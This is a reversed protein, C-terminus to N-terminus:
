RRALRRTSMSAVAAGGSSEYVDVRIAESALGNGTLSAASASSDVARVVYYGNLYGQANGGTRTWDTAGLPAPDELVTLATAMATASAQGRSAQRIGFAIMGVVALMGTTIILLSALVEILTFARRPSM